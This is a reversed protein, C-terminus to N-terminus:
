EVSEIKDFGIYLCEKHIEVNTKLIQALAEKLVRRNTSKISGTLSEKTGEAMEVEIGFTDEIREAVKEMPTNDFVMKDEVWSTYIDTNVNKVVINKDGRAYNAMQGPAIFGRASSDSVTPNIKIKGEELVTQTGSDFTKVVFKTGLVEVSGDSTHVTFTRQQDGKLRAINFYAEGELWVETNLGKEITSSFKLSSNANLVISSGGSLRYTIKEGYKTHYEKVPAPEVKAIDKKVPEPTVHNQYVFLSGLCTVMFIIGAAISRSYRRYAPKDNMYHIHSSNKEFGEINNKLKELETHPNPTNLEAKLAAILGKAEKVLEQRNPDGQLWNDWYEGEGISDEGKVWLVFSKTALLEELSEPKM